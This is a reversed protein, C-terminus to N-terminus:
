YFIAYGTTEIDFIVSEVMEVTQPTRFHTVKTVSVPTPIVFNGTQMFFDGTPIMGVAAPVLFVTAPVTGVAAYIMGVGNADRLNLNSRSWRGNADRLNLNSGSL